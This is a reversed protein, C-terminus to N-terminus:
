SRVWKLVEGWSAKKGYRLIGVRYIRGAVASMLFLGALMALISLAVEWWTISGFSYRVPTVFPAFFPVYSMVRALSGNPESLLSFMLILGAAIFLTVPMQAQQADQPSNVMSGVAAYASAYFLFGLIFFLLFVVLLDPAVTPIPLSTLSAPSAGLLAAIKAKFSTLATATGVWIGLQLLGVLGVGVVKGLMLQFPSLSSILIEVIRSSKEEVVSHMVQIGYILLAIYLLFSMAYALIFSAEGSEGTLKGESVKLTRLDVPQMVGLVVAPDLGAHNLRGSIVLSRLSRELANMDNPSGVNVGLYRIMGQGLASDTIVLIGDLSAAGLQRVGTLAVLSDRTATLHAADTPVYQVVYRPRSQHVTDRMEASLRTAVLRGFGDQVGDLVAVQKPATDRRDLLIPMTFMLIMLAPGLVTSILFARSRVRTLFERRIVALVKHM